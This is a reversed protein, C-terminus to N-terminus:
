REKDSVSVRVTDARTGVIDATARGDDSADAGFNEDNAANEQRRWQLGVVVVTTIALAAVAAMLVRGNGASFREIEATFRGVFGVIPDDNLTAASGFRVRGWYYTLYVGAVVLMGGSIRDMYPLLRRLATAIGNRLLAAGVSLVILASTMGLAYAILVGFGAAAGSTALSAGVVALFVPLTCGLSAIGYGVGFVVMSRPRRQQGPRIRNRIPLRIHLGMASGVGALVMVIGLGIGAWPVARVIQTAGYIFPLAVAVFVTLFGSSVLVGTVLGQGLRSPASPLQEENAGAYFGLFAPLMAFGCPNVISLGGAVVAVVVPGNM